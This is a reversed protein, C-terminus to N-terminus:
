DPLRAISRIHEYFAILAPSPEYLEVLHGLDSRADCFVFRQGSKTSADLLVPWGFGACSEVMRDVSQVLFAVHHLGDARGIVSPTHEQILEVMVDGWQGYASSHDFASDAGRIRASSLEIHEAVVFPGAGTRQRFEAAVDRLKAEPPVAYAIQV